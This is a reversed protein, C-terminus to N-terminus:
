YAGNGDPVTVKEGKVTAALSAPNNALLITDVGVAIFLAGCDRYHNVLVPDTALVEEVLATAKEIDDNFDLQYLALLLRNNLHHPNSTIKEELATLDLEFGTCISVSPFFTVIVSFLFLFYKIAAGIKQKLYHERPANM